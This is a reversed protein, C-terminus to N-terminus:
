KEVPTRETTPFGPFRIETVAAKYFPFYEDTGFMNGGEVSFPLRYGDVNRFDSLTGGFPQLRFRKQPNANSWRMMTVSLPKGEDDVTVDVSQSLDGETM